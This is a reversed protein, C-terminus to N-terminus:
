YFIFACKVSSNNMPHIKKDQESWDYSVSEGSILEGLSPQPTSVVKVKSLNSKTM